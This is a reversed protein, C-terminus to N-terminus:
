LTCHHDTAGVPIRGRGSLSNCYFDIARPGADFLIAQTPATLTRPESRYM